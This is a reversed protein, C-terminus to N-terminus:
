SVKFAALFADTNGSVAAQVVNILPFYVAHTYKYILTLYTVLFSLALINLAKLLTAIFM